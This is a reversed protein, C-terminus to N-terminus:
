LLISASGTLWWAFSGWSHCAQGPLLLSTGEDVDLCKWEIVSYDMLFTVITVYWMIFPFFFALSIYLLLLSMCRVTEVCSQLLKVFTLSSLIFVTSAWIMWGHNPSDQSNYNQFSGLSSLPWLARFQTTFHQSEHQSRRSPDNWKLWVQQSKIVYYWINNPKKGSCLEIGIGTVQFHPSAVGSCLNAFDGWFIFLRETLCGWWPRDSSRLVVLSNQSVLLDAM